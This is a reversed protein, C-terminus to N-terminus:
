FKKDFKITKVLGQDKLLLVSNGRRFMWSLNSILKEGVDYAKRRISNFEM